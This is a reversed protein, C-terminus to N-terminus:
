MQHHNNDIDLLDLDALEPVSDALRNEAYDAKALVKCLEEAKVELEQAREEVRAEISEGFNEMKAEFEDTDGGSWLMETGVAILIKGMSKEIMEEVKEEFENEWTDSMWGDEDLDESDFQFEGNADYFNAQIEDNMEGFLTHFDEILDDDTGLLEGFVETVTVSAIELGETAISITLPIAEQIHGYYDAAWEQQDADLDLEDGNLSVVHNEDITMTNRKDLEVKLLGQHYSINGSLDVDCENDFEVHATASASALLSASIISALVHKKM